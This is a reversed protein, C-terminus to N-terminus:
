CRRGPMSASSSRPWQGQGNTRRSGGMGFRPSARHLLRDAGRHPDRMDGQQAKVNTRFVAQKTADLIDLTNAEIDMPANPDAKFTGLMSGGVRQWRRRPRSRSPAAPRDQGRGSRVDGHHPRGAARRRGAISGARATRATSSCGGARDAREEAPQRRVNGTFLATDAKADFDALDAAIRRDTGATIVAGSARWWARCARAATGPTPRPPEAQASTLQDAAKGEYNVRLEPTKLMTDGQMAVVSGTFLATKTTDNIDLQQSTIDVPQRADRGFGASRRHATPVLNCRWTASSTDVRAHRHKMTMAAGRVTGTPM